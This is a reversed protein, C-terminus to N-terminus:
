DKLCRIGAGVIKEWGHASISSSNKIPYWLLAHTKFTSEQTTWFSSQLGPYIFYGNVDRYGTPLASFGSENTAETNPMNWFITDKLSAGAVSHGGLTNILKHFETSSPVHWGAPCLKDNIAYWNYLIGYPNDISLNNNVWSYAGTTLKSWTSDAQVELIPTGDNYRTTKLNEAMWIQSGIKVTNYENGDIDKLEAASKQLPILFPLNGPKNLHSKFSEVTYFQKYSNYGKAKISMIYLPQNNRINVVNNVIPDLNKKYDYYFNSISLEASIPIRSKNDIVCILFSFTEYERVSFFRLGFDEPTRDKVSLVEVNVPRSSNKSVSFQFPLPNYVNQAETSGILPAVFLTSDEDDLVLFQTLKYKGTKLVITETYYFTNMKQIKLEHSTYMTSSGDSNIITLIIKSAGELSNAIEGSKLFTSNESNQVQVSFSINSETQLSNNEDKKCTMFTILTLILGVKLKNKILLTNM